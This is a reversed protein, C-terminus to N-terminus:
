GRTGKLQATGFSGLKVQGTLNDGDVTATFELTMAMPQTMEVNWALEDGNVTGGSFEMSGQPGSISGSLSNADTKLELTGAQTGMPSDITTNWTGDASV